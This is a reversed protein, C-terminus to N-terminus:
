HDQGTIKLKSKIYDAHSIYLLDALKRLMSEEHPDLKSDAYALRWLNELLAVKEAYDLDKLHSTFHQLSAAEKVEQEAADIATEAAQRSLEYDQKLDNIVLQREEDSFEGDALAIEVMLILSLAQSQELGEITVVAPQDQQPLQNQILQQLKKLM